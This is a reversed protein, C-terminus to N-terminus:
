LNTFVKHVDDLAELTDILAEIKSLKNLDTIEIHAQPKFDIEASDFKLDDLLNKLHGLNEFPFYIYYRTEDSDIDLAQLKDAAKLIAEETANSKNIVMRACKMYQYMVSGAVGMKGHNRDMVNRIETLTRNHNDTTTQIIFTVGDTAFGEYFIEQLKSKDPGVGKEIARKINDNPMNVARAKEIALRLKVNHAPDTLGGHELVALTIIRSMKGFVNGKVKDNAEKKRKINSWKSHGSM